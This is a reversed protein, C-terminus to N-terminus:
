DQDYIRMNCGPATMKEYLHIHDQWKLNLGCGQQKAHDRNDLQIPNPIKVMFM